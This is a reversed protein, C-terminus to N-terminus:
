TQEKLVIRGSACTHNHHQLSFHIKRKIPDFTLSLTIEDNPRIFHQYKLNEIHSLQQTDWMLHNALDMVWQIEIVGPVLPFQHFHGAFWRLDIPVKGKFCAYHQKQNILQWNPTTPYQSFAAQFDQITIKSQPNRPLKDTFRWYRPLAIRDCTHILHQKLAQIIASRGQQRFAKIGQENLAIWAAIRGHKPHKGCYNDTIWPHSNLQQEIQNLSIRKDELKLIRDSRGILTLTRNSIEAIDNIHCQGDTWPSQIIIQEATATASVYPLLHWTPSGSRTAIGGTETSGYIDIPYQKLYHYIQQNTETPLLGGASIIGKLYDIWQGQQRHTGLRNLVAPSTLWISPQKTAAILDEPYLYRTRHIRWGCHLAVFVNFSLGYMHQPSVTALVDQKQWSQPLITALTKAEILMQHATKSIIQAEGTSGSTKLYLTALPSITLAETSLSLNSPNFSQQYHHYQIPHSLDLHSIDTLLHAHNQTVWHLSDTNIDPLLYVPLNNQWTALLASIFHATDNFYLAVSQINKNKIYNSLLLTTHIFDKKIWNVAIEQEQSYATLIM